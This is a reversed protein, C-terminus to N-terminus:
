RWSFVGKRWAYHIAFALIGVFLFIEILPRWGIVDRYALAAPFLYVVEVDFALFILAFLYYAIHFQVWTTGLSYEGSEYTVRSKQDKTKPNILYPMTTAVVVFAASIALFCFVTFYDQLM